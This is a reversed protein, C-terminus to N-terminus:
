FTPSSVDRWKKHLDAHDNGYGIPKVGRHRDDAVHHRKYDTGKNRGLRRERRWARRFVLCYGAIAPNAIPSVVSYIDVKREAEGNERM